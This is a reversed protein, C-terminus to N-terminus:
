KGYYKYPSKCYECNIYRCIRFQEQIFHYCGVTDGVGVVNRIIEATCNIPRNMIYVAKRYTEKNGNPEYCLNSAEAM